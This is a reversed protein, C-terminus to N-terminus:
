FGVREMFIHTDHWVSLPGSKTPDSVHTITRLLIFMFCLFTRHLHSVQAQAEGADSYMQREHFRLLFKEEIFNNKWTCKCCHVYDCVQLDAAKWILFIMQLPVATNREGPAKPPFKQHRVRITPYFGGTYVV